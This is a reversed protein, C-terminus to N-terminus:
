PVSAARLVVRQGGIDVARKGAVEGRVFLFSIQLELGAGVDFNLLHDITALCRCV